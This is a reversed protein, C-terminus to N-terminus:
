YPSPGRGLALLFAHKVAADPDASRRTEASVRQAFAAAHDQVFESNLAALSQLPTATTPRRTCNLAMIPFDFVDLFGVPYNRRAFLYLSRRNAAVPNSSSVLVLGDARSVLPVPPGGMPRELQGSVALVADRMAEAELRRLPMRALLENAPDLVEARAPETQGSRDSRQRYVASTMISRHLRKLRWGQESLDIALWDLLEPNVPPAGKLGFNDPTAVIGTGFHHQWIRNVLVRAVLPHDRALLWRALALRRGSSRASSDAPPVLEAHGSQCLAAPFGPAVSALPAKWDGRRLIHTVSPVAAEEWVAQFSGHVRKRAEPAAPMEAITKLRANKKAAEISRDIGANFEASAKAVSPPVDPLCRESPLKWKLPDYVPTFCAVLRYYDEQTVPDYKHNHCRACHFTLGLLNSAVSETVRGVIENRELPRNLEAENTDDPVNRLFGTAVLSDLTESRYSAQTRWPYLEDGALQETVFRDFPKDANISRVVYDRYKWINKNEKITGLDNDGGHTDAYGANDLWHRGWREGFAPSALLRDILRSYADPSNDALYEEIEAPTPPLGLLDFTARRILKWKEAQPSYALGKAELRAVIFSDIPTQVSGKGKVMPISAKAPPRFAWHSRASESPGATEEAALDGPAGADIWRAILRIQEDSLKAAKGPPMTRESVQEYLLSKVAAGKEIAPGSAGGREIKSPSRLDLDAKRVKSGHCQFCHKSLIPLVDRTFSPVEVTQATRVDDDGRSPAFPGLAAAALAIFGLRISPRHSM